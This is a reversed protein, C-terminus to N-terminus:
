REQPADDAEASARHGWPAQPIGLLSLCGILKATPLRDGVAHFLARLEAESMAGLVDPEPIHPSAM